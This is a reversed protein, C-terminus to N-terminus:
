HSQIQEAMSTSAFKQTGASKVEVNGSGVDIKFTNEGNGLIIDDCNHNTVREDKGCANFDVSGSGISFKFTTDASDHINMVTHGSGMDFKGAPSDMFTIDLSGSGMDIDGTGSIENITCRGSGINIKYNDTIINKFVSNGSGMDLRFSNSKILTSNFELSGSGIDIDYDKANLGSISTNGSGMDIKAKEFTKKPLKIEVFRKSNDWDFINFTFWGFFSTDIDIKTNKGSDRKLSVNVARKSTNKVYVEIDEGDWPMITANVDSIDLTLNENAAIKATYESNKVTYNASWSKEATNDFQSESGFNDSNIDKTGLVAASIWFGVFGIICLPLLTALAKKM